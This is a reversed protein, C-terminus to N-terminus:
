QGTNEFQLAWLETKLSAPLMVQVAISLLLM